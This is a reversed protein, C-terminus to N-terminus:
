GGLCCDKREMVPFPDGLRDVDLLRHRLDGLRALDGLHRELHRHREVDLHIRLRVVDPQRLNRVGLRHRGPHRELHLVPHNRVGLHRGLRLDRDRHQRHFRQHKRCPRHERDSCPEYTLAHLARLTRVACYHAMVQHRELGVRRHFWREEDGDRRM